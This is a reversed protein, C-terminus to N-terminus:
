GAQAIGSKIEDYTYLKLGISEFYSVTRKADKTLEINYYDYSRYSNMVEIEINCAYGDTSRFIDINRINGDQIDPIICNYYLHDMQEETLETYDYDGDLTGCSISIFTMEGMDFRGSMAEDSNLLKQLENQYNGDKEVKSEEFPIEYVRDLILNEDKDYYSIRIRNVAYEYNEYSSNGYDNLEEVINKKDAVIERHINRIKEINETTKFVTTDGNVAIDASYVKDLDPVKKELGFVDFQMGCVVMIVVLASIVPGKWYKFVRFSKKVLMDAAYYGVVAFAAMSLALVIYNGYQFFIEFFAFGLITACCVAACFKFVPRLPKVAVVDSVTEMHRYKIIIVSITVLVIGVAVIAALYGWGEYKLVADTNAYISDIKTGTRDFIDVGFEVTKIIPTIIRTKFVGGFNIGFVLVGAIAKLIWELIIFVFNFIGYFVPLFIIHGTLSACFAALSFFFVETLTLVAFMQFVYGAALGGAIAEAIIMFVATVLNAGAFWIVGTLYNTFFMERRTIPFSGIMGTSKPTYLYSFLAMAMVISFIFALMPGLDSAFVSFYSYNLELPIVEELYGSGFQQLILIPGAFLIIALYVAWIPWYRTTNNKFVTFNFFSIKSRM